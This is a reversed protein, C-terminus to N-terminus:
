EFHELYERIQQYLCDEKHPSPKEAKCWICQWDITLEHEVVQRLLQQARVLSTLGLSRAKLIMRGTGM